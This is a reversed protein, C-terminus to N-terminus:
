RASARTRRQPEAVRQSADTGLLRHRNQLTLLRDCGGPTSVSRALLDVNPQSEPGPGFTPQALYLPGLIAAPCDRQESSQKGSTRVPPFSGSSVNGRAIEGGQPQRDSVGDTVRLLGRPPPCM